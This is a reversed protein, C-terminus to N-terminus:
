PTFGFYTSDNEVLQIIPGVGVGPAPYFNFRLQDTAPDVIPVRLTYETRRGAGKLLTTNKPHTLTWEYGDVFEDADAHDTRVYMPFELGAGGYDPQMVDDAKLNEKFAAERDSPDPFPDIDAVHDYTGTEVKFDIPIKLTSMKAITTGLQWVRSSSASRTINSPIWDRYMAETVRGDSAGPPPGILEYNKALFAAILAERDPVTRKPDTPHPKRFPTKANVRFEYAMYEWVGVAANTSIGHFHKPASVEHANGFAQKLKRLFTPFRGINCGRFHIFGPSEPTSKFLGPPFVVSKTSDALTEVLTEYDTKHSQGPYMPLYMLAKTVAHSGLLVNDIPKEVDPPGNATLFEIFQRTARLSSPRHIVKTSPMLGFLRRLLGDQTGVLPAFGYNTM